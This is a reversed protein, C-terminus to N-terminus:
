PAAKGPDHMLRGGTSSDGPPPVEVPEVPTSTLGRLSMGPIATECTSRALLRRLRGLPIQRTALRWAARRARRLDAIGSSVLDVRRNPDASPAM